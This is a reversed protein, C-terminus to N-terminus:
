DRRALDLFASWTAPRVALTGRTPAKSDRIHIAAPTIATEVCEGGEGGSHSSKFWQLSEAESQDTNM